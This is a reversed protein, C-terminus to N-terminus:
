PCRTSTEMPLPARPSLTLAYEPMAQYTNPMLEPTILDKRTSSARRGARRLGDRRRREAWHRWYWYGARLQLACMLSIRQDTELTQELEFDVNWNKQALYKFFWVDEVGDTATSNRTTLLSVTVKEEAVALTSFVSVLLAVALLLPCGVKEHPSVKREQM